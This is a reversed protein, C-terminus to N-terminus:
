ADPAPAFPSADRVIPASTLLGEIHRVPESVHIGRDDLALLRLTHEFAGHRKKLCGVVRVITNEHEAYRLLLINDAIYSVGLSTPLFSGTLEEIENTMVTTVEHATLYTVMNHLNAAPTAFEAMALDYGRLSDLLVVTRKEVEVAHRLQSLFEDPYLQIPNIHEVRLSGDAILDDIPLGLARARSSISNTSEEFTYLVAREGNQVANRLFQTGLTSKGVGSQGTVITATGREIGGKLLADLGAIGTPLPKRSMERETPEEIRHPFIEVGSGSIRMAHYGSMFGSHRQKEVELQRLGIIRQPSVSRSLHIVTDVALAVAAEQEHDGTEFTLMSTCNHLYLFATLERVKQRFQYADPSLFRLQTVSDVVVHTPQREHIADFIKGWVTAHDVDSPPFLTYPAKSFSPDQGAPYLDIVHVHDLNWGFSEASRQVSGAPESLSIYLCSAGEGRSRYLWQLSTATKGTGTKGVLLCSAGQLLGGGLVEDLGDVGTPIRAIM